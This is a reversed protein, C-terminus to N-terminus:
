VVSKRDLCYYEIFIKKSKYDSPNDWAISATGIGPYGRVNSVKGSYIDENRYKIHTDNMQTCSALGLVAVVLMLLYKKM